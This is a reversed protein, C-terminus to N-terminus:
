ITIAATTINGASIASWSSSGIQVPSSKNAVTGDGLQGYTNDGWAWLSGDSKLGLMFNGLGLSLKTWNNPTSFIVIPSSIDGALTSVGLQGYYNLGWGWLTGNSKIAMTHSAGIEVQKWPATGIKIPSSKNTTTSDGLQGWSNDGWTYLFNNANAVGFKVSALLKDVLM